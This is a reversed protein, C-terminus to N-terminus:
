DIRSWPPIDAEPPVQQDSEWLLRKRGRLINLSDNFGTWTYQTANRSDNEFLVQLLAENIVSPDYDVLAGDRDLKDISFDAKVAKAVINEITDSVQNGFVNELDLIYDSDDYPMEFPSGIYGVIRDGEYLPTDDWYISVDETATWQFSGIGNDLTILSTDAPLAALDYYQYDPLRLNQVELKIQDCTNRYESLVIKDLTDIIVWANYAESGGQSSLIEVRLAETADELLGEQYLSDLDIASFDRNPRVFLSDFQKTDKNFHKWIFDSTEQNSHNAALIKNNNTSHYIFITDEGYATRRHDDAHGNFDYLQGFSTMTGLSLMSFAVIFFLTKSIKM